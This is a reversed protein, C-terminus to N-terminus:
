RMDLNRIYSCKGFVRKEGFLTINEPSSHNLGSCSSMMLMMKTKCQHESFNLLREIAMCDVYPENGNGICQIWFAWILEM